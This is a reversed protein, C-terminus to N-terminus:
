VAVSQQREMAGAAAQEYGACMADLPFEREVRARGANGMAACQTEGTVFASIAAATIPADAPKLLAGAIGDAVVHETLPSRDAIVAKRLAMFDLAAFAAADGEAAIWGIDAAKMVALEDQRAGAFTVLSTVGIAAAHMRLEDQREAGVIALRLEPHRPALLSMSRLATLVRRKDSGDYLCVILRTGERAGLSERPVPKAADHRAIDVSLPALASPVSWSEVKAADRDAETTFLLGSPAIRSALRGGAGRTAVSFPPIRRIVAGGGGGLRLASSAALHEADTHVFIVDASREKLVGRLNWAAGATSSDRAMPVIAIEEASARVQVPCEAACALQVEHGRAALARAAIVFARARASWADDSILFLARM